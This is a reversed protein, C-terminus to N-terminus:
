PRGGRPSSAPAGSRDDREAGLPVSGPVSGHAGGDVRGDTTDPAWRWTRTDGRLSVWRQAGAVEGIHVIPTRADRWEAGALRGDTALVEVRASRRAPEGDPFPRVVAWAGLAGDFSAYAIWRGDPSVAVGSMGSRLDAHVPLRALTRRRVNWRFMYAPTGDRAFALGLVATDGVVTPLEEALVDPVTDIRTEIRADIRAGRVEVRHLTQDMADQVEYPDVLRVTVAAVASRADASAPTEGAAAARLPVAIRDGCAVCAGCAIAGLLVAARSDGRARHRLPLTTVVAATM